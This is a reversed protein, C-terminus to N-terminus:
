SCVNFVGDFDNFNTQIIRSCVPKKTAETTKMYRDGLYRKIKKRLWGLVISLETIDQNRFCTDEIYLVVVTKYVITVCLERTLTGVFM